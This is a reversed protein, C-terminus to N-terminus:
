AKQLVGAGIIGVRRKVGGVSPLQLLSPPVTVGEVMGYDHLYRQINRIQVPSDM